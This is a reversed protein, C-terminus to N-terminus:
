FTSVNQDISGLEIQGPQAKVRAQEGLRLRFATGFMGSRTDELALGLRQINEAAYASGLFCIIHARPVAERAAQV